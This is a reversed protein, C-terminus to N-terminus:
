PCAMAYAEDESVVELMPRCSWNTPNGEGGAGDKYVAKGIISLVEINFPYQWGNAEDQPTEGLRILGDHVKDPRLTVQRLIGPTDTHNLRIICFYNSDLDKLDLPGSKM